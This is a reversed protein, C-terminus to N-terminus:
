ANARAPVVIVASHAREILQLPIRGLRLGTVDFLGGTGVCAASGPHADLARAIAAATTPANSGSSSRLGCSRAPPGTNPTSCTRRCSRSSRSWRPTTVAPGSGAWRDWWSTTSSRPWSPTPAFNAAAPDRKGARAGPEAEQARAAGRVRGRHGRAPCRGRCRRGEVLPASLSRLDRLGQSGPDVDIRGEPWRSWM